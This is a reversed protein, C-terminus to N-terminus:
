RTVQHVVTFTGPATIQWPEGDSDTIEVDWWMVTEAGAVVAPWFEAWDSTTASDATITLLGDEIGITAPDSDSDFQHWVTPDDVTQRVQARASAIGAAPMASGDGQLVSVTAEFKRGAFCRVNVRPLLQELDTDAM